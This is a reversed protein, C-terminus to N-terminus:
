KFGVVGVEQINSRSRSSEAVGFEPNLKFLEVVSPVKFVGKVQDDDNIFVIFVAISLIKHFICPSFPNFIMLEMLLFASVVTFEMKVEADSV